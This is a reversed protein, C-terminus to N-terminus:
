IPPAESEYTLAMLPCTAFNEPPSIEFQKFSYRGSFVKLLLGPKVTSSLFCNQPDANMSNPDPELMELSDPDPDLTQIVLFQFLFFL